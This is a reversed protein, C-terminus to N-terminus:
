PSRITLPGGASCAALHGLARKLTSLAALAGFVSWVWPGSTISCSNCSSSNASRMTRADLLGHARTTIAVVPRSSSKYGVVETCDTDFHRFERGATHLADRIIGDDDM